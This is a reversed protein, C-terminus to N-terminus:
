RACRCRRLKGGCAACRDRRRVELMQNSAGFQVMAAVAFASCALPVLQALTLNM